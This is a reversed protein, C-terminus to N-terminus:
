GCLRWIHSRSSYVKVLGRKKPSSHNRLLNLMDVLIAVAPNGSENERPRKSAVTPTELSFKGQAVAGVTDPSHTRIHPEGRVSTFPFSDSTMAMARAPSPHTPKAQPRAQKAVPDSHGDTGPLMNNNNAIPEDRRKVPHPAEDENHARESM